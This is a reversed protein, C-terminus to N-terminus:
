REAENRTKTLHSLREDYLRGTTAHQAKVETELAEAYNVVALWLDGDYDCTGEYDEVMDMAWQPTIDRAHKYNYYAM